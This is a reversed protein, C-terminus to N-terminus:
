FETSDYIQGFDSIAQGDLTLLETLGATEEQFLSQEFGSEAFLNNILDDVSIVAAVEEDVLTPAIVPSQEAAYEAQKKIKAFQYYGVIFGTALVLVILSPIVFKKMRNALLFILEFGEIIKKNLFNFPNVSPRGAREPLYRNAELKTAAQSFIKEFEKFSPPLNDAGLKIISVINFIEKLEEQYDPYLELIEPVSSGQESKELVESIVKELKRSRM